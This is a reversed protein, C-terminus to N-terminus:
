HEVADVWIEYPDDSGAMLHPQNPNVGHREFYSTVVDFRDDMSDIGLEAAEVAARALMGCRHAGFSHGSGTDEAVGVGPALYKTYAPVSTGLHGLEAWVLRLHDAAAAWSGRSLYLVGADARDFLDSRDCVKFRFPVRARNLTEAVARILPAAGTSDINWYVRTLPEASLNPESSGLISYFGPSMRIQEGAVRLSVEDDPEVASEVLDTPAVWLTLQNREIVVSHAHVESVIWGQQLSERTSNAVRLSNLFPGRGSGAGPVREHRVTPRACGHVYFDTYLREELRQLLFARAVDSPLDVLNRDFAPEGFWSFNTLVDIRLADLVGRTVTEFSQIM